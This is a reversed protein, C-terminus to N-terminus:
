PMICLSRFCVRGCSSETGAIPFNPIVGSSLISTIFSDTITRLFICFINAQSKEMRQELFNLVGDKLTLLAFESVNPPLLRDVWPHGGVGM